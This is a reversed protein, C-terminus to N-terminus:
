RPRPPAPEALHEALATIVARAKECFVNVAQRVRVFPFRGEGEHHKDKRNQFGALRVPHLLGTINEDGMERNMQKFWENCANWPLNSAVKIVAQHNDASTELVTAPEYGRVKLALVDSMTLDDLLIHRAAPDLPTILVNWGKANEVTLAPILALVDAKSHTKDPEGEVKSKGLVRGIKEGNIVQSFTIRYAPAALADLQKSIAKAKVEDAQSFPLPPPSAALQQRVEAAVSAAAADAGFVHWLWAVAGQYDLGGVRKTLDIANERPGIKGTYALAAAVENIPIGRLRAIDEKSAAVQDTLAAVQAKLDYNERRENVLEGRLVDAGRREAEYLVGKAAAAALPKLRKSAKTAEVKQWTKIRQTKAKASELFPAPPPPDPIIAPLPMPKAAAKYFRKMPVHRAKSGRERPGVGFPAMRAEWAEQLGKLREPNFMDKGSLRMGEKGDRRPLLPVVVAQIHPTSEDLHLVAGAIREGFQETLFAIAERRFVDLRDARWTGAATPDEPRFWAPSVSLLVDNALTADHKLETMDHGGVHVIQGVVASPMQGPGGFLWENLHLRDPDANPTPSTRSLHGDVAQLSHRGDAKMKGVRLIPKTPAVETM